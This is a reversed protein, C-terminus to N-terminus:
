EGGRAALAADLAASEAVWDPGSYPGLREQATAWVNMYRSDAYVERMKHRLAAAAERVADSPPMKRCTVREPDLTVRDTMPVEFPSRGCCPMEAAGIEPSAHVVADSPPPPTSRLREVYALVAKAVRICEHDDHGCSEGCEDAEHEADPCGCLCVANCERLLSELEAIRDHGAAAAEVEPPLPRSRLAADHEALVVESPHLADASVTADALSHLHRLFSERTLVGSPSQNERRRAESRLHALQEDNYMDNGM